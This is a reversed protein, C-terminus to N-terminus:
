EVQKMGLRSYNLGKADKLRKCYASRGVLQSSRSSCSQKNTEALAKAAAEAYAMVVEKMLIVLELRRILDVQPQIM